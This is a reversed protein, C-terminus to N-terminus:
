RLYKRWNKIQVHPKDPFNQWRGGWDLGLKEAIEGCLSWLKENNWEAKGNVIPVFDFALGYCHPSDKLYTVIKNERETIPKLGAKKRALNVIDVSARGQLYLAEQEERSRLTSYIIVKIGKKECEILFKECLKKLEPHLLSIKDSKNVELLGAM